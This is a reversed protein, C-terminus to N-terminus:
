PTIELIQYILIERESLPSLLRSAAAMLVMNASVIRITNMETQVASNASPSHLGGSLGPPQKVARYQGGPFEM